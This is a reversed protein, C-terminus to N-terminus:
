ARQAPHIHCLGWFHPLALYEHSRTAHTRHYLTGNLPATLCGLFPLWHCVPMPLAHSSGRTPIPDVPSSAIDELSMPFPISIYLLPLAVPAVNIYLSPLTYSFFPWVLFRVRSLGPIM